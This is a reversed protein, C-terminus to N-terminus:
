HLRLSIVVGLVQEHGLPDVFQLSLPAEFEIEFQIRLQHHLRAGKGNKM